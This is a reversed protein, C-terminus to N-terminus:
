EAEDEENLIATRTEESEPLAAASHAGMAHVGRFFHQVESIADLKRTNAEIMEPRSRMEPLARQTILNQAFEKCYAEGFVKKFDRNNELRSLAEALKVKEKHDKIEADINRVLNTM